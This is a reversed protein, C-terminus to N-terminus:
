CSTASSRTSARAIGTKGRGARSSSPPRRESLPSRNGCRRRIRGEKIAKKEEDTNRQKPASVLSADVIQGSMPIYGSERISQDFRAFLAEVAGARTLRERFAWITKADPVKDGLGLGLFRM